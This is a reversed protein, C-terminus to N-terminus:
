AAGTSGPPATSSNPELLGPASAVRVLQLLLRTHQSAGALGHSAPLHLLPWTWAGGLTRLLMRGEGMDGAAM